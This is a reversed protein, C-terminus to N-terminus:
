RLPIVLHSRSRVLAGRRKVKVSIAHARGDRDEAAGEVGILYYGSTEKLVRDFAPAPSTGHVRIVAGGAAGAITELGTAAVSSDRFYSLRLGGKSALAELFSWDLHLAFVSVDAMAAERGLQSIEASANARGVGRDSSILGGSILVLVKRGPIERLGSVLGRLGTLSQSVRMELFGVLSIAAQRIEGISCTGSRCERQWVRRAVEVDGSSCDIIESPSLNFKNVPETFLGSVRRIARRVASHDNTLDHKAVGTPYAFLGVLDDPQLKDIFREGAEVAALANSAHLSHEDVALVFMRRPRPTVIGAVPATSPKSGAMPDLPKAYSIFEVSAIRRKRGSISVEFDASGLDSVPEGNKAVVHVDVAILETASRFTPRQEIACVFGLLVICLVRGM